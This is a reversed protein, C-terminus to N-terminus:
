PHYAMIRDTSRVGVVGCVPCHNRWVYEGKEKFPGVTWSTPCSMVPKAPRLRAM